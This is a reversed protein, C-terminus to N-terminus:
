PIYQATFDYWKWGQTRAEPGDAIQTGFQIFMKSSTVDNASTNHSGSVRVSSGNKVQYWVRGEVMDYEYHVHYTSGTLMGPTQATEHGVGYNVQFTMRGQTGKSNLYGMMNSWSQGNNLWFVCHFGNSRNSDWQKVFVDFDLVIKRFRRTSGFPMDYQWNGCSNCTLFNGPLQFVVANPDVPDGGGGGGGGGDGDPKALTSDAPTASPRGFQVGGTNVDYISNYAWFTQDCSVRVRAGWAVNTLGLLAFADDFQVQSLPAMPFSVNQVILLGDAQRVDVTCTAATHALNVIGLNAYRLSGSREFGQLWASGGAPILDKSGLVPVEVPEPDNAFGVADPALRASIILEPSGEIELMGRGGQPILDTFRLSEGPAIFRAPVEGTIQTGNTFSPIFRAFFGLVSADTPNTVWLETNRITSDASENLGVPVYVLGASLPAVLAFGLLALLAPRLPRTM